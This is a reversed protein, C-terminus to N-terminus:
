MTRLFVIRLLAVWLLWSDLLLVLGHLFPFLLSRRFYNDLTLEELQVRALQTISLESMACAPERPCTSSSFEVCSTRWTESEAEVRVSGHGTRVSGICWVPGSNSELPPLM